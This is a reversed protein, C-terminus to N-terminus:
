DKGNEISKMQSLLNKKKARANPRIDVPKEEVVRVEQEVKNKLIEAENAIIEDVFKHPHYYGLSYVHKHNKLFSLIPAEGYKEILRNACVIQAQYTRKQSKNWFKFALTGKNEKESKRICIVEAVYQALTCLQGTSPSAFNKTPKKEQESM